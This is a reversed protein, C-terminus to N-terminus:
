EGCACVDSIERAVSVHDLTRRMERLSAAPATTQLVTRLRRAAPVTDQWRIEPGPDLDWVIRDPREIDGVTSNWM